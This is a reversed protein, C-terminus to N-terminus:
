RKELKVESAILILSFHSKSWGGGRQCLGRGGGLDFGPDAVSLLGSFCNMVRYVFDLYTRKNPAVVVVIAYYLAKWYMARFIDEYRRKRTRGPKTLPAHTSRYLSCWDPSRTWKRSCPFARTTVIELIRINMIRVYCILLKDWCVSLNLSMIEGWVLGCQTGDCRYTDTVKVTRM